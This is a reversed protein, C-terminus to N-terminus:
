FQAGLFFVRVKDGPWPTESVVQFKGAATLPAMDPRMFRVNPAQPQVEPQPTTATRSVQAALEPTSQVTAPKEVATAPASSTPPAPVATPGPASAPACATILLAAAVAAALLTGQV